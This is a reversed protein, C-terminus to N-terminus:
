VLAVSGPDSCHPKGSTFLWAMMGFSGLILSPRRGWKDLFLIAPLTLVVNIVYQISATALPSAVHAGEMIYVIYYMMVNMGSNKLKARTDLLFLLLLLM